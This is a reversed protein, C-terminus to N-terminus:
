RKLLEDIAAVLMKPLFPKQLFAFRPQVPQPLSAVEFPYGSCLLIRVDPNLNAIELALDEGSRDPLTLDVVAVKFRAPASKVADLAASASEATEASYGLKTLVMQMLNVLASEDDVLLIEASSDASM